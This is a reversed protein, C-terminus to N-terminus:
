HRQFSAILSRADSLLTGWTGHSSKAAVNTTATGVIASNISDTATVTQQGVTAFTIQVKAYGHDFTVTAPLTAASDTSSLNATGAYGPVIHNEADEAVILATTASGNTTNPSLLVVFHTAVAASAVNTTASGSLTSNASDTATVTQQGGTAFTAQFKAYGHDFTVTAPLAAAFDTSSLNATGTYGSVIRNQADEAVLIGTAQVGAKTGPPLLLVYHTAVDQVAVNTTATGVPSASVSDVATLTQAGPTMFTVIFSAHGNEFTVTAPLTASADSSSLNATGSYNTLVHNQADTAVLQVTIATGAVVGTPLHLVYHPIAVNTNGTGTLTSNTTDTATVTQQGATAFTVQFSAHGNQFTVTAPITASSDSSALNTTGSYGSVIHNQADEALLQVTVPSGATVGQPLAVVFHTAAAAAVVNTSATGTLASNASDTATITQAGATTFTAQFSAHGNKFTVTTPLTAATDSSSLNATGSYGPVIFNEADEAVLQVSVSKGASAGAPMYLVYHTAVAPAAVNTTATGTISSNTGDTATVSQSGSTVFTVQFSAHGNKFTVTSPLTASADSSTLNATGDYSIVFRNQADEALLAVTTSTGSTTGPVLAVVFHTATDGSSVTGNHSGTGNISAPAVPGVNAHSVAANLLSSPNVSLLARDEL